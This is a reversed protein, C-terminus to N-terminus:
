RVLVRTHHREEEDTSKEQSHRHIGHQGPPSVPAVPRRSEDFVETRDERHRGRAQEDEQDQIAQQEEHRRGLDVLEEWGLDMEPSEARLMEEGRDDAEIEPGAGSPVVTQLVPVYRMEADKECGEDETLRVAWDTRRACLGAPGAARHRPDDRHRGPATPSPGSLRAASEGDSTDTRHLTDLLPWRGEEADPVHLACPGWFRRCRLPGRFPGAWLSAVM